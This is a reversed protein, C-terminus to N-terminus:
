ACRESDTIRTQTRVAKGMLEQAYRLSRASVSQSASANLM